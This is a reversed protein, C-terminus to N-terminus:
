NQVYLPRGSVSGAADLACAAGDQRREPLVRVQL